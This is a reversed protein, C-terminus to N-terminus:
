LLHVAQLKKELMRIDFPRQQTEYTVILEQGLLYGQEEYMQIKQCARRRYDEQDMIGLHELIIEKRMRTALITFDPYIKRYPSIFLPYEYRYPIGERYLKDAIIKETKSRVREGKETYIEPANEVFIQGEYEVNEWALRYTMDDIEFPEILDKKAQPFKRYVEAPDYNQLGIYCKRIAQLRCNCAKLLKGHYESCVITRGKEWEEKRMYRGNPNEEGKARLYMQKRKGKESIRIRGAPANKQLYQLRGIYDVMRQEEAKLYYELQTMDM